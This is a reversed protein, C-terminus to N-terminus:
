NAAFLEPHEAKAQDILTKPFIGNFFAIAKEEKQVLGLLCEDYFISSQFEHLIEESKEFHLGDASKRGYSSDMLLKFFDYLTWTDEDTVDERKKNALTAITDEIGRPLKRQLALVDTKNLHFWLTQTHSNGDFDEATVTQKILIHEKTFHYGM